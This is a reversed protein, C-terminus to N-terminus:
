KRSSFSPLAKPVHTSVKRKARPQWSLSKNSELPTATGIAYLEVKARSKEKFGKNKWLRLFANHKESLTPADAGPIWDSRPQFAAATTSSGRPPM